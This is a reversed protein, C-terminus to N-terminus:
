IEAQVHKLVVVPCKFTVVCKTFLNSVLRSSLVIKFNPIVLPLYLYRYYRYFIMPSILTAILDVNQTNVNPVSPHARYLNTLGSSSSSLFTMIVIKHQTM